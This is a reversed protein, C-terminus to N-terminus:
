LCLGLLIHRIDVYYRYPSSYKWSIISRKEYSSSSSSCDRLDARPCDHTHFTLLKMKKAETYSPPHGTRERVTEDEGQCHTTLTSMM